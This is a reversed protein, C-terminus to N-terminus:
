RVMLYVAAAIAMDATAHSLLPVLPGGCLRAALGWVWSIALLVAFALGCWLPQLLTYLVLVHYGAFAMHRAWLHPSAHRLPAWHREELVPNVCAFYLLFLVLSTGHLGREHLWPGLVHSGGFISDPFLVLVPIILVVPPALLLWAKCSGGRSFHLGTTHQDLQAGVLILGHYLLLTLWANRMWVLGVFVAAYPTTMKFLDLTRSRFPEAM